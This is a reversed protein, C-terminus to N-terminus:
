ELIELRNLVWAGDVSKFTMRMPVKTRPAQDVLQGDAGFLSRPAQVVQMVYSPTAAVSDPAESVRTASWGDTEYRGGKGYVEEV